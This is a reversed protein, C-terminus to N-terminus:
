SIRSCIIVDNERINNLFISKDTDIYQTVITYWKPKKFFIWGTPEGTTNTYHITGGPHRENYDNIFYYFLQGFEMDSPAKARFNTSYRDNEKKLFEFSIILLNKLKSEDPDQIHKHVPYFWQIFIKPPIQVAKRYTYFVFFPLIFACSVTGMILEIGERNVIRYVMVFCLYGLMTLVITFLLEAWFAGEGSWKLFRYQTFLHMVGLGAFLVQIFVYHQLYTKLPLAICFGLLAFAAGYALLYILSAKGFPKFSGRIKSVVLGFVTSISLVGIGVLLFSPSMDPSFWKEM